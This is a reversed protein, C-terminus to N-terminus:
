AAVTRFLDHDYQGCRQETRKRRYCHDRLKGDYVLQWLHKQLSRLRRTDCEDMSRFIRWLSIESLRSPIFQRVCLRNRYLDLQCAFDARYHDFSLRLDRRYRWGFADSQRAHLKDGGGRLKWRAYHALNRCGM